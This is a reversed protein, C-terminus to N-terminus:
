SVYSVGSPLTKEELNILVLGNSGPVIMKSKVTFVTGAPLLIEEESSYSQCLVGLSTTLYVYKKTYYTIDM